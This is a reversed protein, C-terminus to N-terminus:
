MRVQSPQGVRAGRYFCMKNYFFGAIMTFASYHSTDAEIGPLSKPGRPGLKTGLSVQGKPTSKNSLNKRRKQPMSPPQFHEEQFDANKIYKVYYATLSMSHRCTLHNVFVSQLHSLKKGCLRCTHILLPSGAATPPHEKKYDSLSMGHRESLHARFQLPQYQFQVLEQNPGMKM